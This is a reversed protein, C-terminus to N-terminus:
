GAAALAAQDRWKKRLVLTNPPGATYSIEDMFSRIIFLGMGREPLEDPLEAYSAPDYVKGHDVLRIVLETDDSSVEIDVRRESMPPAVGAPADKYGHIAINNFAESFASVVRTAFEDQTFDTRAGDTSHSAAAETSPERPRLLRCATGVVRVAVDRYELAGPVSLRILRDTRATDEHSMAAAANESVRVTFAACRAALSDRSM